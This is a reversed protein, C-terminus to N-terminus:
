RRTFTPLGDISAANKEARYAELEEPSKRAAWQRLTPREEQSDLFPVAYGCSTSIREIDVEIIARAGPLEDFHHSLQRYGDRGLEHVTGRGHLRLIRPPGAFATFMVTIRGNQRVHAITEAGSGTLDLYAVRLPDLVRFSDYGKPSVNVHGGPGDPATAVFFVPQEVIWAVLEDDLVPVIKSV